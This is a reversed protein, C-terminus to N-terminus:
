WCEEAEKIQRNITEVIKDIQQKKDNFSEIHSEVCDSGAHLTMLEDLNYSAANLFKVTQELGQITQQKLKFNDQQKIEEESLYLKRDLEKDFHWIALFEANSLKLSALKDCYEYQFFPSIPSIKQTLNSCSSSEGREDVMVIDGANFQVCSDRHDDKKFRYIDVCVDDNHKM